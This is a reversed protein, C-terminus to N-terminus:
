MYLDLGFGFSRKGSRFSLKGVFKANTKKTSILHGTISILRGFFFVFFSGKRKVAMFNQLEIRRAM